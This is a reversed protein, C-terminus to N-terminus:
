LTIIMIMKNTNEGPKVVAVNVFDTWKPIKSRGDDMLEVTCTSKSNEASAEFM